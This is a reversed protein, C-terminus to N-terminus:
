NTAKIQDADEDKWNDQQAQEKDFNDAQPAPKYPAKM